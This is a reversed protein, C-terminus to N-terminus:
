GESHTVYGELVTSYREAHADRSESHVSINRMLLMVLQISQFPEAHAICGEFHVPFTGCSRCLEELSSSVNRM